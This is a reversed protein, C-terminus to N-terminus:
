GGLLRSVAACVESALYPKSIFVEGRSGPARNRDPDPRGTMFIVPLEPHSARARRALEHGDAPGPLQIDTLLVDVRGEGLHDLAADVDEAELVEYGAEELTEALTLRILFEDEVLLLRARRAGANGGADTSQPDM